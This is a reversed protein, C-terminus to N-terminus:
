DSGDSLTEVLSHTADSSFRSIYEYMDDYLWSPVAYYKPWRMLGFKITALEKQAESSFGALFDRLVEVTEHPVPEPPKGDSSPIVLYAYFHLGRQTPPADDRAPFIIQHFRSEYFFRNLALLHDDYASSIDDESLNHEAILQLHRYSCIMGVLYPTPQSM